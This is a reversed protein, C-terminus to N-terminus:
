RTPTSFHFRSWLFFTLRFYFMRRNRSTTMLKALDYLWIFLSRTTYIMDIKCTQIDTHTHMTHCPRARAFRQPLYLFPASVISIYLCPTKKYAPLMLAPPLALNPFKYVKSLGDTQYERNQHLTAKNKSVAISLEGKNKVPPLACNM